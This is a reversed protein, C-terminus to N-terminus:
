RRPDIGNLKLIRDLKKELSRLESILTFYAWGIPAMILAIGLPILILYYIM